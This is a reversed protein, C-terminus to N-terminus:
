GAMFASVMCMFYVGTLICPAKGSVELNVTCDSTMHGMGGCRGCKTENVFNKQQKCQYTKHDFSGCITCRAMMEEERLTGNLAALELLQM